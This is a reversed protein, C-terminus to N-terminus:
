SSRAAHREVTEAMTQALLGAVPLSVGATRAAAVIDWLDKSWPRYAVPVDAADYASAVQDFFGWSRAVWSDGTSTGAVKLVTAADVDYAQALDLAEHAGALAAFMMLQNALKVASGAGPAGVHVVDGAITDFYPQALRLAEANAGAMVTLDGREAREFGGSVPADVFATTSSDALEQCLATATAPLVTSHVVVLPDDALSALLDPTRVVASVAADDPVALALVRCGALDHLSAAGSAGKAVAASVANPRIDYATVPWGASVLASVMPLGLNGLGVFGIRASRDLQNM